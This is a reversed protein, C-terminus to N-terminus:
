EPWGAALALVAFAVKGDIHGAGPHGSYALHLALTVLAIGFTTGIGRAMNVLGGLVAASSAAASRMIVANNAPVFVGLGLGALGLLVVLGATSGPAFILMALAVASVAAGIFGRARNPLGAPFVWEATLAAVGFGVPLASLILGTRAANGQGDLLQPVLM